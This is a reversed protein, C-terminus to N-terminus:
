STQRGDRSEKSLRALFNDCEERMIVPKSDIRLVEIEGRKILEYMKTKGLDGLYAMAGQISLAGGRYIDM